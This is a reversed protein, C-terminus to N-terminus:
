EAGHHRAIKVATYLLFAGFVYLIWDFNELLAVGAFIFIARLVLAGFIGWFLTRHQYAGPVSFYSFILAWVFVNDVSLSKEILFGAYYEGTAQGGYVAWVVLGFLLGISIWGASEIAAEKTKIEHARRHFVLLDVLLLVFIFGVLCAWQYWTVSLDAFDGGRGGSEAALVPVHLSALLSAMTAVM